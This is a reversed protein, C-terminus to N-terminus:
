ATDGEMCMDSQGSLVKHQETATDRRCQRKIIAESWTKSRRSHIGGRAPPMLRRWFTEVNEINFREIIAQRSVMAYKRSSFRM